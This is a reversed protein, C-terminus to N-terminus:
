SEYEMEEGMQNYVLERYYTCSETLERHNGQGIVKGDDLVIIQDADKVASIRQAVIIKTCASFDRKLAKRLAFDTKYDLASSSDDLLLIEPNGAFARALLLRQKQGGSINQGKSAIENGVESEKEYLFTAQAAETASEIQSRSIPRGLTINNEISSAYLFDNQFVVGMQRYLEEPSFDCLMKGNIRIQGQDPLYFRLLLQIVTSKGSGIPGVIGLTQGKKLCFSLDSLNERVKDYSFHVKEFSIHYEADGITTVPKKEQEQTAKEKQKEEQREVSLFVEAIREASAAGKSYMMFMRSVAMLALLILTCYSLFAIITGTGTLGANVRYAGVVIVLTLGANLMFQLVPETVNVLMTARKELQVVESNAEEFRSQEFDAKSLAQIVRIGSMSEQVHRILRDLAKQTKGYLKAGRSSVQWVIVGLIPLMAILVSALVPDIIITLLIGGILIIPARVGIRQMRDILQHVHYTDVTLRSILSPITFQDAQRCSLAMTKAFLDTRLRYTIDRSTATAMRNATVNFILAFIACLLMIVGWRLTMERNKAPAYENLIIALIWPLM